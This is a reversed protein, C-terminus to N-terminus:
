CSREIHKQFEKLAKKHLKHIYTVDHYLDNAIDRWKQGELYRKVLIDKSKSDERAIIEASVKSKFAKLNMVRGDLQAIRNEIKQKTEETTFRSYRKSITYHQWKKIEEQCEQINSDISSFETLYEKAPM